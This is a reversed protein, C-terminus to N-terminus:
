GSRDPAKLAHYATVLAAAHFALIIAFGIQVVKWETEVATEGHWIDTLALHCLVIAFVSAIGIGVTLRASKKLKSM